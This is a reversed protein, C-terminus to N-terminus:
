RVRKKAEDFAMDLSLTLMVASLAKGNPKECIYYKESECHDDNWYGALGGTYIEVCDEDGHSDNPEGSQWHTYNVATGDEWGYTGEIALDNM